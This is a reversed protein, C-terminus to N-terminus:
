VLRFDTVITLLAEQAQTFAASVGVQTTSLDARLSLMDRDRAAGWANLQAIMSLEGMGEVLCPGLLPPPAGGGDGAFTQIALAAASGGASAM